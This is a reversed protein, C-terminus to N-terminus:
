KIWEELDVVEYWDIQNGNLYYSSSSSKIQGKRPGRSFYEHETKRTIQQEAEEKTAFCGVWDDTGSQPYYCWGAILLYKKMVPRIFEMLVGVQTDWNWDASDVFDDFTYKATTEAELICDM